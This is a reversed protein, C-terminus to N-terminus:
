EHAKRPVPAVHLAAAANFVIATDLCRKGFVKAIRNLLPPANM